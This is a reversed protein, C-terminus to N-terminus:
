SGDRVETISVRPTEPDRDVDEHPNRESRTPEEHGADYMLLARQYPIDPPIEEQWYFKGDALLSSSMGAVILLVLVFVVLKKM